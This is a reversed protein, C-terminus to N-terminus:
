LLSQHIISFSIDWEKMRFSAKGGKRETYANRNKKLERKRSNASSVLAAALTQPRDSPAFSFSRETLRLPLCHWGSSWWSDLFGPNTPNGSTETAATGNGRSNCFFSFIVIFSTISVGLSLFVEWIKYFPKLANHKSLPPFTMNKKCTVVM